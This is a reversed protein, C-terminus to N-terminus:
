GRKLLKSRKKAQRYKKSTVYDGRPPNIAARVAPSRSDDEIRGVVKTPEEDVAKAYQRLESSVSQIYSANVGYMEAVARCTMGDLVARRHVGPHLVEHSIVRRRLKELWAAHSVRKLRERDWEGMARVRAFKVEDGRLGFHSMAARVPLLMILDDNVAKDIAALVHPAQRM